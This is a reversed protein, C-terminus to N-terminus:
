AATQINREESLGTVLSGWAGGNHVAIMQPIAILKKGSEGTNTSADKQARQQKVHPPGFCAVDATAAGKM